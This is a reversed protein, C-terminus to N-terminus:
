TNSDLLPQILGLAARFDGETNLGAARTLVEVGSQQAYLGSVAGAAVVLLIAFSQSRM